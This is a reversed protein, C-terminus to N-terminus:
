LSEEDLVLNEEEWQEDFSKQKRNSMRVGNCFPKSGDTQTKYCIPCWFIRLGKERWYDENCRISPHETM